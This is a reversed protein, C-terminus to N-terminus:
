VFMILYLVVAIIISLVFSVVNRIVAFKKGLLMSEAPLQIIGVTVWAVIFSTVAILSIGQKLFEGGLIYSTIPNGALISGILAGLIPDLISSGSFLRLFFEKPVLVNVLSVLLITGLLIPLVRWLQRSTKILSYKIQNQTM